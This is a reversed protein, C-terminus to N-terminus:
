REVINVKLVNWYAKRTEGITAIKFLGTSIDGIYGQFTVPTDSGPQFMTFKAYEGLAALTNYALKFDDSDPVYDWSVEYKKKKAKIKRNLRGTNDREAYSDLTNLSFQISRPAPMETGNIKICSTM